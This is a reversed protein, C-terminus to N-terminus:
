IFKFINKLYSIELLISDFGKVFYESGHSLIFTQWHCQVREDVQWSEFDNLTSLPASRKSLDGHSIDIQTVV